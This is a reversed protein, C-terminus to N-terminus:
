EATPPISGGQHDDATEYEAENRYYQKTIPVKWMLGEIYDIDIASPDAVTFSVKQTTEVLQHGNTGGETVDTVVTIDTTTTVGPILSVTIDSGTAETVTVPTENLIIKKQTYSLKHTNEEVEFGDIVTIFNDKNDITEEGNAIITTTTAETPATPTVTIEEERSLTIEKLEPTLTWTQGDDSLTKTLGSVVTFTADSDNNSITETDATSDTGINITAVPVNVFAHGDKDTEIGFYRASATSLDQIEPAADTGKTETNKWNSVSSESYINNSKIGGIKNDGGVVKPAVLTITTQTANGDLNNASVINIGDGAEYIEILDDVDLYVDKLDTTETHDDNHKVTKFTIKIFTGDVEEGEVIGKSTLAVDEIMANELASGLVHVSSLPTAPTIVTGNEDTVETNLDVISLLDTDADYALGFAVSKNKTQDANTTTDVTLLTASSKSDGVKIENVKIATDLATNLNGDLADLKAKDSSSMIGAVYEGSDVDKRACKLEWTVQNVHSHDVVGDATPPMSLNQFKLDIVELDETKSDSVGEKVRIEPQNAAIFDFNVSKWQPAFKDCINDWLANLGAFDLYKKTGNESTETAPPNKLSTAM